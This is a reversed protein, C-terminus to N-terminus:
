CRHSVRIALIKAMTVSVSRRESDLSEETNVWVEVAISSRTVGRLQFSKVGLQALCPCGDIWNEAIQFNKAFRSVIFTVEIPASTSSM